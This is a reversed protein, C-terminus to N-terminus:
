IPEEEEEVQSEGRTSGQKGERFSSYSEDSWQM